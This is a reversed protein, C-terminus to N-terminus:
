ICSARPPVALPACQPPPVPVTHLPRAASAGRPPRRMRRSRVPLAARLLSLRLDWWLLSNSVTDRLRQRPTASVMVLAGPDTVAGHPRMAWGDCCAQHLPQVYPLCQCIGRCHLISAHSWSCRRRCQANSGHALYDFVRVQLVVLACHGACTLPRRISVGARLHPFTWSMWPPGEIPTM